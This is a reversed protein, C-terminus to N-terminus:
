KKGANKEYSNNREETSDAKRHIRRRQLSLPAAPLAPDLIRIGREEHRYSRM